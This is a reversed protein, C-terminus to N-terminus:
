PLKLDRFTPPGYLRKLIADYERYADTASTHRRAPNPILCAEIFRRIPVPMSDPIGTELAVEASSGVHLAVMCRTLMYLDLAPTARDKRFVEPPYYHKFAPSIASVHAAPNKKLDLAYSWDILMGGHNSLNVLIHPPLIAGHIIGLDHVWTLVELSRRWIWAVDRPDLGRPFAKILDVIPIFGDRYTFVNAQRHVTGVQIRTTEVLRPLYRLFFAKDKNDVGHLQKLIRAETEVLDSDRQDRSIKIVARRPKADLVCDAVYVDSIDGAALAVVNSYTLKSKITVPPVVPKGYTGAEVQDKAVRRLNTLNAMADAAKKSRGARDPHLLWAMAIFQAKIMDLKGAKSGTLKGFLDECNGSAVAEAIRARVAASQSEISSPTPAYSNTPM